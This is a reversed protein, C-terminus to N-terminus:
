TAGVLYYFCFCFCDQGPFGVQIARVELEVSRRRLGSLWSLLYLRMTNITPISFARTKCYHLLIFIYFHTVLWVRNASFGLVCTPKDSWLSLINSSRISHFLLDFRSHFRPEEPFSFSVGRAVVLNSQDTYCTSLATTVPKQFFCLLYFTILHKSDFVTM